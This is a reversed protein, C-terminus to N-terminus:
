ESQVFKLSKIMYIQQNGDSTKEWYPSGECLVKAGTAYGDLKLYTPVDSTQVQIHYPGAKNLIDLQRICAEADEQNSFVINNFQWWRDRYDLDFGIRGDGPYVEREIRFGLPSYKGSKFRLSMGYETGEQGTGADYGGNIHLWGESLTHTM